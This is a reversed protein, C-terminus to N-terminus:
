SVMKHQPSLISNIYTHLQIMQNSGKRRGIRVIVYLIIWIIVMLIMIILPYFTSENLISRTYLWICSAIFLGAVAFHLFMFMTWVSPRPSFLGKIHTAGSGDQLLELHLEPSWFHAESKRIKIFIHDDIISISHKNQHAEKKFRELIQSTDSLVFMQFRPRLALQKDIERM